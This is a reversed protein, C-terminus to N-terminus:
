IGKAIVRENGTQPVLRGAMWAGEISNLLKDADREAVVVAMGLGMNFVRFM